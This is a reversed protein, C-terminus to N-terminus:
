AGQAGVEEDLLGALGHVGDELRGVALSERLHAGAVQHVEGHAVVGHEDFIGAALVDAREFRAERNAQAPQDAAVVFVRGGQGAQAIATAPDDNLLGVARRLLGGGGERARYRVAEPGIDLFAQEAVVAVLVVVTAAIVAVVVVAVPVAVGLGGLRGFDAQEIELARRLIV